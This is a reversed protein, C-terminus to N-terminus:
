FRDRICMKEAASVPLAIMVALALALAISCVRKRM